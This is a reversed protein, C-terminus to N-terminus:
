LTTCFVHILISIRHTSNQVISQTNQPIDQKSHRHWYVGRMAEKEMKQYVPAACPFFSCLHSSCVVFCVACFAQGHMVDHSWFSCHASPYHTFSLVAVVWGRHLSVAGLVELFEQLVFAIGRGLEKIVTSNNKECLRAQDRASVVGLVELEDRWNFIRKCLPSENRTSPACIRTKSSTFSSPKQLKKCRWSPKAKGVTFARVLQRWPYVSKESRCGMVRMLM